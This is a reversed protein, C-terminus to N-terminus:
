RRQHTQAAYAIGTVVDLPLANVQRFVPKKVARLLGNGSVRMLGWGDPLESVDAVTKDPVVLWWYSCWRSWTLAKSPERLEKLWDSRSVKIEHGHIAQPKSYFKDIAIYDAIRVKAALSQTSRVKRARVFRDSDAGARKETYRRDLLDVISDETHKM